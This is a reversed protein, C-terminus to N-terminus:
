ADVKQAAAPLAMQFEAGGSACKKATLHGAYEEVITRSIALGIGM